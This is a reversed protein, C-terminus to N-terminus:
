WSTPAPFTTFKRPENAYGIARSRATHAAEDPPGLGQGASPHARLGSSPSITRHSPVSTRKACSPRHWTRPQTTPSTSSGTQEQPTPGCTPVSSPTAAETQLSTRSTPPRSGHSAPAPMGPATASAPGTTSPSISNPACSTCTTRSGPEPWWSRTMPPESGRMIRSVRSQTLGNVPASIRDQSAGDYKRMLRFLEAFDRTRCAAQFEVRALLGPSVTYSGVAAQTQM